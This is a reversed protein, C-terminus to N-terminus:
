TLTKEEKVIAMIIETVKGPDKAIMSAVEEEAEIAEAAVVVASDIAMDEEVMAAVDVAAATMAEAEESAVVVEVGEESLHADKEVEPDQVILSGDKQSTLVVEKAVEM